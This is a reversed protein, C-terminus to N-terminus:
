CPYIIVHETFHWEDVDWRYLQQFKPIPYTIEDWVKYHIHNSM